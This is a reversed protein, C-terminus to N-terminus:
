LICTKPVFIPFAPIFLINSFNTIRESPSDFVRVRCQNQLRKKSKRDRTKKGLRGLLHWFRGYQNTLSNSTNICWCVCVYQRIHQLMNSRGGSGLLPAAAAPTKAGSCTFKLSQTSGYILMLSTLLWLRPQGKRSIM